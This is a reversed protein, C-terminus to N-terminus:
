LVMAVLNDERGQPDVFRFVSPESVCWHRAIMIDCFSSMQWANVGAAKVDDKWAFSPANHHDVKAGSTVVKVHKQFVTSHKSGGSSKVANERIKKSTTSPSISTTSSLSTLTLSLTELVQMGGNAKPPQMEDKTVADKGDERGPVADKVSKGKSAVTFYGALNSAPVQAPLRVHIVKVANEGREKHPM